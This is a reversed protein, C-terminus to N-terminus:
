FGSSYLRLCEDEAFLGEACAEITKKKGASEALHSVKSENRITRREKGGTDFTTDGEKESKDRHPSGRCNWGITATKGQAVAVSVKEREEKGKNKPCDRSKKTRQTTSRNIREVGREGYEGASSLLLSSCFLSVRSTILVVFSFSQLMKSVRRLDLNNSM